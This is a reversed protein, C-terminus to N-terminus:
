ACVLWCTLAGVSMAMGVALANIAKTADHDIASAVSYLMDGNKTNSLADKGLWQLVFQRAIGLPGLSLVDLRVTIATLADTEKKWEACFAATAHEIGESQLYAHQAFIRDLVVAGEMAANVGQGIPPFPAAADGLLVCKGAVWTGCVKGKGTAQPKRQQFARLEKDSCHRLVQRSGIFRKLQPLSMSSIKAATAKGKFGVQCFWLPDGAGARGNIAGAVCLPSANMVYLITPDLHAEADVADFHLMLSHNDLDVSRVACGCRQEMARRMASGGGDAGVVLDFTRVSATGQGAASTLTVEGREFDTIEARTLFHCCVERRTDQDVLFQQLTRCITGRSGTWARGSVRVPAGGLVSVGTFPIMTNEFVDTAGIYAVAKAGHGTIDITYSRNADFEPVVNHDAAQEFVSISYGGRKSLAAALTLGAPGAGIIAVEIQRMWHSRGGTNMFPATLFAHTSLRPTAHYAAMCLPERSGERVCCPLLKEGNGCTGDARTAVAWSLWFYGIGADHVLGAAFCICPCSFDHM